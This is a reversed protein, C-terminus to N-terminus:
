RYILLDKGDMAAAVQVKSGRFVWYKVKLFMLSLWEKSEPDKITREFCCMFNYTIFMPWVLFYYVILVGFGRAISNAFVM